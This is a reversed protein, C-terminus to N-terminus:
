QEYAVQNRGGLKANYLHRDAESMLEDLSYQQGSAIGISLTVSLNTAELLFIYDEVIGRFNDLLISVKQPDLGCIMICFEEGGTRAFIFREFSQQILQALQKLVSDGANHGYTDNVKKFHDVDLIALSVPLNRARASELAEGAKEYFFRRNPLETLYDHYAAHRIHEVHEMTEINHIIRCHFEEHSFPKSLFDNAGNKIFKASLGGSGHTSLGIIILANKDVEKRIHKVLDFGNMVPMNYDTILLKIEPDAHIVDLAQQGNEVEIVQYLHTHLMKKIYQRSTKSDDAVLVRIQKNRDLRHLLRLVYEYSFRSEKVVYDVMPRELMQDRKHEDFSGTLVITPLAMKLTYDVVEGNPADPLNLDVVAALYKQQISEIYSASYQEHNENGLYQKAEAFTLAHDFELSPDAKLMHRIIKAVLPSDEVLLFRKM